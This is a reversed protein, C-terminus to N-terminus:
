CQLTPLSPEAANEPRQIRCHRVRLGVAVPSCSTSSGSASLNAANAPFCRIQIHIVSSLAERLRSWMRFEDLAIRQSLESRSLTPHKHDM